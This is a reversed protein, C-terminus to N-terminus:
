GRAGAGRRSRRSLLAPAMVALLALSAPEPAGVAVATITFDRTGITRTSLPAQEDIFLDFTPSNGFNTSADGIALALNAASSAATQSAQVTSSTNQDTGSLTTVYLWSSGSGVGPTIKTTGLRFASIYGVSPDLGSITWHITDDNETSASSNRFYYNSDSGATRGSFGSVTVTYTGVDPDNVTFVTDSTSGSSTSVTIMAAQSLSSGAVCIAAAMGVIFKSRNRM